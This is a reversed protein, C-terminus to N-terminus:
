SPPADDKAAPVPGPALSREADKRRWAAPPTGVVRRFARAFAAESDYGVRAGVAAISAQTTRLLNAALQMRWQTLYQMPAQGILAVFREHLASRSLGAARGLLEVTWPDAPRGHMEALARGVHRDRLGALWGSGSDPVTEIHARVADVFIMESLRALLVASGAKPERSELAAQDMAQAMWGPRRSGPIHLVRPLASILPNFPRLDCGIFGCLLTADAGELPVPVGPQQVGHHYSLAIPKPDNRTEYVWDATIRNPRLGPASSLVHADGQAFLVVDGGHIRLPQEGSVAAWGEGKVLMHYEMVHDAGAMVSEAMESAAVAEASWAGRFNVYYFLAGRLRIAQLVDSLIDGSM